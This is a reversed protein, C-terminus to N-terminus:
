MSLLQREEPLQNKKIYLWVVLHPIGALGMTFVYAVIGSFYCAEGRRSTFVEALFIPTAMWGILQAVAFFGGLAGRLADQAPESSILGSSNGVLSRKQRDLSLITPRSFGACSGDLGAICILGMKNGVPAGPPLSLHSEFKYTVRGNISSVYRISAGSAEVGQVSPYFAFVQVSEPNPPQFVILSPFAGTESPEYDWNDVSLFGQTNKMTLTTVVRGSKVTTSNLAVVPVGAELVNTISYACEASTLLSRKNVMTGICSQNDSGVTTVPSFLVLNKEIAALQSSSFCTSVFCMAFFYLLLSPQTTSM